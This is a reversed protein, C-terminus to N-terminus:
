WIRWVLDVSGLPWVESPIPPASSLGRASLFLCSCAYYEDDQHKILHMIVIKYPRGRTFQIQKRQCYRYLHHNIFESGNDSDIGRLRFPLVQRMTELAEQVRLEGKGLVARTAVWTPHMDTLNLSHIVCRGVPVWDTQLSMCTTESPAGQLTWRAPM